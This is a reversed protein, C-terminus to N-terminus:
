VRVRHWCGRGFPANEGDGGQGGFFAGVSEGAIAARSVGDGLREVPDAGVVGRLEEFAEVELVAVGGDGVEAMEGEAEFADGFEGGGFGFVFLEPVALGLGRAILVEAFGAEDDGRFEGADFDGLELGGPLGEEGGVAEDVVRGEGM